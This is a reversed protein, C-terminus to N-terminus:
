LIGTFVLVVFWLLVGSKAFYDVVVGCTIIGHEDMANQKISGRPVQM